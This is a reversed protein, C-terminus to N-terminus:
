HVKFRSLAHRLEQAMRHLTLASETAESSSAAQRRAAEAVQEMAHVVQESAARQQATAVSIESSARSTDAALRTIEGLADAAEVALEMDARVEKTGEETALVSANTEERIQAILGQIERTAATSREALRRVEDAVVAFGRGHKGARAAEIAANLALLNTQDSLERSIKLITGIEQGLEGLRLTREGITDVREWIRQMGHQVEDVAQSGRLAAAATSEALGAVSEATQAISAATAALQEITATTETVAASQESAGAAEAEALMTLQQAADLLQQGGEQMHLVLENLGSVMSKFTSSIDVLPEDDVVGAAIEMRASQTLDGAAVQSFAAEIAATQAGLTEIMHQRVRTYADQRLVRIKGLVTTMALIGGAVLLAGRVSALPVGAFATAVAPLAGLFLGFALAWGFPLDHSAAVAVLGLAAWAPWGVGGTAWVIGALLVAEFTHLLLATSLPVDEVDFVRPALWPLGPLLLSAGIGIAVLIFFWGRQLGPPPDWLVAIVLLALVCSRVVSASMQLRRNPVHMM